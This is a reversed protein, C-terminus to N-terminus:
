GARADRRRGVFIAFADPVAGSEALQTESACLVSLVREDGDPDHGFCHERGRLLPHLLGGGAPLVAECALERRAVDLLGSSRAAEHPRSRALTDPDPLATPTELHGGHPNRRLRDPLLRAHRRVIEMRDDPYRFRDPGVYELFVLRGRPALGEHLRRLLAEPDAAHHLVGSVVIANWPGDPPADADPDFRAHLVTPRGLRESRRRADELAREEAEVALIEGVGPMRALAREIFGGGGVVLARPLTPPLHRSRVHSLWDVGPDGSARRNRHRQLAASPVWFEAGPDSV